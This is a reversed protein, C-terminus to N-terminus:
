EAKWSVGGGPRDELAIGKKKLQARIEDARKYDRRRRAEERERIMEEVRASVTSVEDPQMVGLVSDVRRLAEAVADRGPRSLGGSDILTNITRMFGYLAALAEAVNLDDDMASEFEALFSSSFGVGGPGDEQVQAEKLRASFADIRALNSKAQQLSEDTLDLKDRYHAGILFLRIARPKWGKETLQRLTVVNGVSKHMEEGSVNLFDSHLWCRVFEKGTAAESQAIENEHHPFRNDIGGTHIDFTEGLYKMSMASCEIHWGPRGKGLETEWFVEGDDADWAKWLAFDNAEDKDYSDNKVRAGAVLQSPRIGSLEGYREFKSVDYYVSGDDARYAYGKQMLTKILEVMEPIHKTARPYVEAREINLTSLDEMFAREYFLTLDELTKGSQKMGKIIKDEVDTINMVQTVKYGKFKLYRRLIDEFVFTRFNGVHAYNWVTPGCTYMRVEGARLPEFPYVKRGLSNYLHLAL